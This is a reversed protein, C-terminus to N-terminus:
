APITALMEKESIGIRRAADEVSIIGESVLSAFASTMKDRMEDRGKKHGDEWSDRRMEAIAPAMEDRMEDRGKKHGDEWSDRRMEEIAECMNVKGEREYLRLRSHTVANILNASDTDLGRYEPDESLIRALKEKDNSYKIYRLVKGLGTQFKGFDEDRIRAPSVLNIHYNAVLRILGEPCPALMDYISTAGDWESAGFYIVLTVVPTLSDDKAFGSLFENSDLGKNGETRHMRKIADIQNAYRMADYLMNRAPMAYHINTQSEIGLIAYVANGDKMTNWKKLTDRLKQVGKHNKEANPIVIETPDMLELAAPNVIRQGDYAFYNFADAFRTADSLYAKCQIDAQGM